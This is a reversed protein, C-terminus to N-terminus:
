EWKLPKHLEWTSQLITIVLNPHGINSIHEYWIKYSNTRQNVTPLSFCMSV